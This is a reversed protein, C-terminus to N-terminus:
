ERSAVEDETLVPGVLALQERLKEVEAEAKEARDEWRALAENTRQHSRVTEEVEAQLSEITDAAEIFINSKGEPPALHSARLREVLETTTRNGDGM